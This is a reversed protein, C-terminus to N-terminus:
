IDDDTDGQQNPDYQLEKYLLELDDEAYQNYRLTGWPTDYKIEWDLRYISSNPQYRSSIVGTLGFQNEGWKQTCVRVRDGVKLRM